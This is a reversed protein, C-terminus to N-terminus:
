LLGAMGFLAYFFLGVFLVNVLFEGFVRKAKRYERTYKRVPRKVLASGYNRLGYKM